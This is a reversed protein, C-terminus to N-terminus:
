PWAAPAGPFIPDAKAGHDMDLVGPMVRETVYAGGLVVGRENYVSVVDGNQIGKEAADKPNIWVPQYQYGDVGRVKCTEIERIWTIDDHNAHVGWRPHNSCMLMPYKKSRETGLTEQHSEGYPIWHPVPPREDDDPFHEALGTAYFEIKGTPTTLPNEVPDKYFKILGAPVDKWKPDTPVVYYGKENIEEWSIMGAVGSTDFGLKILDQISKGDTYEKLVGLKDAIMCVIEYDSKTEAIPEICKYEPFVLNFQGSFIDSGIDDEEFKTNVPLILDAYLCDNEM